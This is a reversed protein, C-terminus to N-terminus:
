ENNRYQVKMYQNRHSKNLHLVINYEKNQHKNTIPNPTKILTLKTKYTYHHRYKHHPTPNKADGAKYGTTQETTGYTRMTKKQSTQSKM